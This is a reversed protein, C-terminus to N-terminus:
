LREILTGLLDNVTSVFRRSAEAAHQFSALRSMEEDISVGSVADRAAALVDARGVALEHEASATRVASGVAGISRIAEDLFTRAGGGAVAQDRLALLGLAGRNDGPGAGATGAALLRPDSTVAGLVAFTSAAGAVAGPQAFLDRGAVGDLGAGARHSANIKTALDFALADLDGAATLAAGDRFQLEGAIKGGDLITTVDAVHSGDIVQVIARGVVKPDPATALRAARDGDVLVVGGAAVFRMMGDPDIRAQGGTLEALKRAALDRQDAIAPDHDTALSKNAAAIRAALETAARSLEAVRADADDRARAIAAATRQIQAALGQAAGVVEARRAEDTPAATLKELGAFFSAIAGPLGGGTPARDRELGALAASLTEARGRV